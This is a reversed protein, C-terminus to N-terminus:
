TTPNPVSVKICYETTYTRGTVLYVLCTWPGHLVSDIPQHNILQDRIRLSYALLSPAAGIAQGINIGCPVIVVPNSRLANVLGFCKSSLSGWRGSMEFALQM